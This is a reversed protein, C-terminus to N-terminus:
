ILFFCLFTLFFHLGVNIMQKRSRSTPGVEFHRSMKRHAIQLLFLSSFIFFSYEKASISYKEGEGQIRQNQSTNYDNLVGRRKKNM